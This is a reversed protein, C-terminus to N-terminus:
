MERTVNARAAKGRQSYGMEQLWEESIKSQNPRTLIREVYKGILDVELLQKTILSNFRAVVIAFRKGKASLQGEYTKM